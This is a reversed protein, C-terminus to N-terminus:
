SPAKKHFSNVVLHLQSNECFFSWRLDQVLNYIRKQHRFIPSLVFISKKFFDSYIYIYIYVCSIYMHYIYIYYILLIYIYAYIDYINRIYM